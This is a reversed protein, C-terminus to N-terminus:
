EGVGAQRLVEHLEAPDFPKGLFALPHTAEARALTKPDRSGSIFISGVDLRERLVEAVAVGDMIGDLTIDVLAVSPHEQEATEVAEQGSAVIGVVDYGWSELLMELGLAVMAEDEVIMVRGSEEGNM